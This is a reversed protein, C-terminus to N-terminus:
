VELPPYDCFACFNSYLYVLGFILVSGVPVAHRRLSPLAMGLSAIEDDNNADGSLAIVSADNLPDVRLRVFVVVERILAAERNEM